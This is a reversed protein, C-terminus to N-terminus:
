YSATINTKFIPVLFNHCVMNKVRKANPRRYLNTNKDPAEPIGTKTWSFPEPDNREPWGPQLCAALM